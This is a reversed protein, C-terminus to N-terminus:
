GGPSLHRVLLNVHEPSPVEPLDPEFLVPRQTSAASRLVQIEGAKGRSGVGKGFRLLHEGSLVGVDDPDVAGVLLAPDRNDTHLVQGVAAHHVPVAVPRQRDTQGQVDKRVCAPPHLVQVSAPKQM